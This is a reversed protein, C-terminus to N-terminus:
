ARTSKVKRSDALAMWSHLPNRGFLPPRREGWKSVLITEADEVNRLDISEVEDLDVAQDLEEVVTESLTNMSGQTVGVLLRKSGFRVVYLTQGKGLPTRGEVLAGVSAPSRGNRRGFSKTSRTIIKSLGLVIAVVLVLSILSKAVLALESM